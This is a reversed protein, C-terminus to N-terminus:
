FPADESDLFDPVAEARRAPPANEVRRPVPEFDVIVFKQKNKNTVARTRAVTVVEDIPLRASQLRRMYRSFSRASSPALSLGVLEGDVLAMKIDCRLEFGEPQEDMSTFPVKEPAGTVPWHIWYVKTDFIVGRLEPIINDGASFGAEIPKVWLVDDDTISIIQRAAEADIKMEVLDGTQTAILARCDEM